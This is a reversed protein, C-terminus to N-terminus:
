KDFSFSENKAKNIVNKAMRQNKKDKKFTSFMSKKKIRNSQIWTRYSTITLVSEDLIYIYIYTPQSGLFLHM